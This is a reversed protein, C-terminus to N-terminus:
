LDFNENLELNSIWSKGGMKLPNEEPYDVKVCNQEMLNEITKWSFRVFDVFGFVKDQNEKMWKVTNPDAPYGSGFERSINVGQLNERFTWDKVVHDRNVKAVISAASVIPFKSDAKESVTFKLYPYDVFKQNLLSTYYEPKGVTDIYINSLNLKDNASQILGFATNYSIENLNVKSKACMQNSLFDPDLIKEEFYLCFGKLEKLIEFFAERDEEKVQKSDFFGISSLETQLSEPWACSGYVMPGLAPGRGAEDIGLEWTESQCLTAFQSEPYKAKLSQLKLSLQDSSIPKHTTM